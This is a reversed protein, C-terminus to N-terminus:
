RLFCEFKEINKLCVTKRFDDSDETMKIEDLLDGDLSGCFLCELLAEPGFYVLSCLEEIERTYQISAVWIRLYLVKGTKDGDHLEAGENESIGVGIEKGVTHLIECRHLLYANLRRAIPSDCEITVETPGIQLLGGLDM